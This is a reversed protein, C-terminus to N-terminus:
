LIVQELTVRINQRATYLSRISSFDGLSGKASETMDLVKSFQNRCEKLTPGKNILIAFFNLKHQYIKFLFINTRGSKTLIDGARAVENLQM